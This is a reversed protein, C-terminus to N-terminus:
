NQHGVIPTPLRRGRAAHSRFGAVNVDENACTRVDVNRKGVQPGHSGHVGVRVPEDITSHATVGPHQRLSTMRSSLVISYGDSSSVM